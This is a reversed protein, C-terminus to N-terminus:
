QCEITGRFLGLMLDTWNLSAWHMLDSPFLGTMGLTHKRPLGDFISPKSIGTDRRARKYAAPTQAKLVTDLKAYYKEETLPPLNRPDVDPHNCGAVDYRVPKLMAAFYMSEDKKHRGELECYKGRCGCKANHPVFGNQVSLAPGDSTELLLFPRS